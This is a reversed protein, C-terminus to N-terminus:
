RVGRWGTSHQGARGAQQDYYRTVLSLQILEVVRVRSCSIDIIFLTIKIWVAVLGNLDSFWYKIKDRVYIM